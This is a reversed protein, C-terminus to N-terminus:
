CQELEISMKNVQDMHVKLNKVSENQEQTTDNISIVMASNEEGVAVLNSMELSISGIDANVQRIVEHEEEMIEKAQLTTSEIEGLRHILGDMETVGDKAAKAGSSIKESVKEAAQKLEIIIEQINGAAKASDASLGRIESAVVAFGRGHEGARAAEISANLSLLNTQNAIGNIEDLISRISNMRGMLVDTVELVQSVEGAMNAMGIKVEEAGNNGLEVAESVQEFSKGLSTAIESNREIATVANHVNENINTIGGMMSDMADSIQNASEKVSNAHESVVEMLGNSSDVAEKLEEAIASTINSQGQIKAVMEHLENVMIEGRKTAFGLIYTVVVLLITKALAGVVTANDMGEVFQPGVISLGLMYGCIPFIAVYIYKTVFYSTAMGLILYLAFVATSSGGVLVSYTLSAVGVTWMMGVAKIFDSKVLVYILSTIVGSTLLCIVAKYSNAANGYKLVTMLILIVINALIIYWNNRHIKKM